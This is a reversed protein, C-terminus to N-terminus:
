QVNPERAGPQLPDLGQDTWFKVYIAAREQFDFDDGRLEADVGNLILGSIDDPHGIGFRAKVDQALASNTWLGWYNRLAMGFSFHQSSIGGKTSRLRAKESDTLATCITQIADELTTPQHAGLDLPM